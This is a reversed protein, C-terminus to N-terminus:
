SVEGIKWRLACNSTAIYLLGEIFAEDIEYVDSYKEVLPTFEEQIKPLNLKLLEGDNMIAIYKTRLISLLNEYVDVLYQKGNASKSITLIISIANLKSQVAGIKFDNNLKGKELKDLLTTSDGDIELNVERGERLPNSVKAVIKPIVINVDRGAMNGLVTNNSQEVNSKM